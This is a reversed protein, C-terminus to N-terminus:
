GDTIRQAATTFGTATFSASGRFPKIPNVGGRLVSVTWSNPTGSYVATYTEPVGTTAWIRDIPARFVNRGIAAAGPATGVIEYIADGDHSDYPILDYELDSDRQVRLNGIQPTNDPINATGVDVQTSAGTLATALAQEDWDPEPRGNVDTSTGDWAYVMVRDGAEGDQVTGIQNDPPSGTAGLLDTFQDAAIADSVDVAMGFNAPSYATGTYLGIFQINVVRDNLSTAVDADATELSTAGYVTQNDAPVVGRTRQGYFFGDVGNDDLAMLIMTGAATNTVVTGTTAAIGSTLGAFEQSNSFATAGSDQAVVLIDNTADHLLVRGRALGDDSVVVEGVTFADGGVFGQDYVPATSYVTTVRARLYFSEVANITNKVWDTPRTFTLVQGDAVAVTFGSTGDSLGSVATWATGNWYEWAVAGGVGQTGNLNDFVVRAFPQDFGIACYDLEDEQPDPFPTFNADTADNFGTTQDSFSPGGSDDVQWVQQALVFPTYPLETGWALEEDESFAGSEADYAFDITVGTFLQANRGNLTESTGRRQVYKTREYAQISAASGFELELAFPQLGGGNNYNIEQYGETLVITNYPAGAVTGVATQNNGDPSTVLAISGVGEGLTTSTEFYTDNFRLSRGKVRKGDIDVGGDRTRRLIRIKGAISNPMFANKWYATVIADDQIVVPNTSGDSDTVQIDLGSYQTNGGLQEVSGGFMHQAIEDDIVVAGNLAVIQNTSRASPTPNYSSLVDDGAHTADDNLDALLRHINLPSYCRPHVVGNLAGDGPSADDGLFTDDDDPFLLTDLFSIWRVALEGSAGADSLITVVECQQGGSFTLIEGVIVDTTQGDFFFSHTAGLALGDWSMLGTAPLVTDERFYAPYLMPESDGNAAPGVTNATTGTQTLVETDTPRDGSVLAIAMKGSNGDDILTIVRGAGGSWTIPTEGDALFPGAAETDYEVVFYQTEASM